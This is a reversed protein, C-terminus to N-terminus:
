VQMSYTSCPMYLLLTCLLTPFVSFCALVIIIPAFLSMTKSVMLHRLDERKAAIQAIYGLYRINIGRTHLSAKLSEGDTPTVILQICDRIYRPTVSEVLFAAAEQVM